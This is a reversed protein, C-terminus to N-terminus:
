CMMRKVKLLMNEQIKLRSLNWIGEVIISEISENELLRGIMDDKM